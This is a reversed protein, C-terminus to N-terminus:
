RYFRYNEIFDIFTVPFDIFISKECGIRKDIKISKRHLWSFKDITISHSRNDIKDIAWAPYFYIKRPLLQSPHHPPPPPLDSAPRRSSSCKVSCMTLLDKALGRGSTALFKSFTTRWVRKSLASNGLLLRIKKKLSLLTLRCAPRRPCGTHFIHMFSQLRNRQKKALRILHEFKCTKSIKDWYGGPKQLVVAMELWSRRLKNIRFTQFNTEM